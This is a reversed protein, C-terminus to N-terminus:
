DNKDGVLVLTNTIEMNEIFDKVEEYTVKAVNDFTDQITDIHLMKDLEENLKEYKDDLKSYLIIKDAKLVKEKAKIFVEEDLLMNLTEVMLQKCKDINEKMLFATMEICGINNHKSSGCTYVLDNKYRLNDMLLSNERRSLITNILLLTYKEEQTYNKKCFQMRVGSQNYGKHFVQDHNVDVDFYPYYDTDFEFSDVDQKFYKMFTNIFKEKDEVHGNVLTFYNNNLINKHYFDIVSDKTTNELFELRDKSSIAFRRKSDIQKSWEDEFFGHIGVTKKLINEKTADYDLYYIADTLHEKDFAVSRFLTDHVFKLSKDLDFDDFMGEIPLYFSARIFDSNGISFTKVSFNGIMYEDLADIFLSEEPYDISYCDMFSTLLNMSYINEFPVFGLPFTMSIYVIKLNEQEIITPKTSLKIKM